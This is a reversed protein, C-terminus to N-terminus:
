NSDTWNSAWSTPYKRSASDKWRKRSLNARRVITSTTEVLISQNWTTSWHSRSAKTTCMTSNARWQWAWIWSFIMVFVKRTATWASWMRSPTPSMSIEFSSKRTQALNNFQTSYCEVSNKCMTNLSPNKHTGNFAKSLNGHRPMLKIPYKSDLLYFNSSCPYVIKLRQINTKM